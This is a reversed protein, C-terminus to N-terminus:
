RVTRNKGGLSPAAQASPAQHRLGIAPTQHSYSLEIYCGMFQCKEHCLTFMQMHIISDHVSWVEELEVVAVYSNSTCLDSRSSTM